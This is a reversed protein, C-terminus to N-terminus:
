EGGTREQVQTIEGDGPTHQRWNCRTCCYDYSNDQDPFCEVEAGCCPCKAESAETM